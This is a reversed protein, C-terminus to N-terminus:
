RVLAQFWAANRLPEFDAERRAKTRTEEPNRLIAAELSLRAEEEMDGARASACAMNYPHKWQVLDNAAARAFHAFAGRNDGKDLAQFGAKHSSTAVLEAQEPSSEPAPLLDAFTLPVPAPAPEVVPTPPPEVKAPVDVAATKSEPGSKGNLWLGAVGALVLVVAVVAVGVVLSSRKPSGEARAVIAVTDFQPRSVNPAPTAAVDPQAVRVEASAPAAIAELRALVEAASAPRQEPRKALLQEILQALEFPVPPSQAPMAPAPKTCIMDLLERPSDSRFPPYGVLLEWMVLGLSFLDARGDLTQADIHEPSMYQLTGISHTTNNQQAEDVMKAIGFDLVKVHGSASIMVNEPKLDRHIIPPRSGHATVLARVIQVAIGVVEAWPLGGPSAQELRARLTQGDLYELAILLQGDVETCHLCRVIHPSDLGSLISMEAIFRRRGAESAALEDRLVKLAVRRKSLHEEAEFVRGMGGVGLARHVIYDGIRTPTTTLISDGAAFPVM